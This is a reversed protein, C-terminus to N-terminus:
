DQRSYKILKRSNGRCYWHFIEFRMRGYSSIMFRESTEDDYRFDDPCAFTIDPEKSSMWELSFTSSECATAFITRLDFTRLIKGNFDNNVADLGANLKYAM